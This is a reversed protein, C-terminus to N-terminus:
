DYGWVGGALSEKITAANSRRTRATASAEGKAQARLRLERRARKNFAAQVRKKIEEPPITSASSLGSYMSRMSPAYSSIDSPCESYTRERIMDERTPYEVDASKTEAETSETEDKALDEDHANLRSSDENSESQDEASTTSTVDGSTKKVKSPAEDELISQEVKTRLLEVENEPDEKAESEDLNEEEVGMEVLLDHAM